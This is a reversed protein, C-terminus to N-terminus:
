GVVNVCDAASTISFTGIIGIGERGQRRVKGGGRTDGAWGVKVESCATDRLVSLFCM